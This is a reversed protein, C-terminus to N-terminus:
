VMNLANQNPDSRTRGMHAPSFGALGAWDSAWALSGAPCLLVRTSFERTNSCQEFSNVQITYHQYFCLPLFIFTSCKEIGRNHEKEELLTQKTSSNFEKRTRGLGENEKKKKKKQVEMDGSNVHVISVHFHLLLLFFV